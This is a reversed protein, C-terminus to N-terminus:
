SWGPAEAPAPEPEPPRDSAKVLLPAGREPFPIEVRDFDRPVIVRDGM